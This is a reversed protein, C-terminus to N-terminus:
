ASQCARNGSRPGRRRRRHARRFVVGSARIRVRPRGGRAAMARIPRRAAAGDPCRHARSARRVTLPPFVFRALGPTEGRKAGQEMAHPGLPAHAFHGKLGILNAGKKLAMRCPQPWGRQGPEGKWGQTRGPDAARASEMRGAHAPRSCTRSEEGAGVASTCRQAPAAAIRLQNPLACGKM